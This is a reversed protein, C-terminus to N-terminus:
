LDEVSLIGALVEHAVVNRKSLRGDALCLAREVNEVDQSSLAYMCDRMRIRGGDIYVLFGLM